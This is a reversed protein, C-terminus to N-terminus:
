KLSHQNRTSLLKRTQWSLINKDAYLAIPPDQCLPSSAEGQCHQLPLPSTEKNEQNKGEKEHKGEQMLGWETKVSPEKHHGCGMGKGALTDSRNELHKLQRSSSIRSDPFCWTFSLGNKEIFLETTLFPKFKICSIWLCRNLKQCSTQRVIKRPLYGGVPSSMQWRSPLSLSFCNCNM